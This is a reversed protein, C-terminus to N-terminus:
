CQPAQHVRSLKILPAPRGGSRKDVTCVMRSKVKDAKVYVVERDEERLIVHWGDKASLTYGM